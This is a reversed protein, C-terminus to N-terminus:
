RSISNANWWCAPSPITGPWEPRELVRAIMGEVEANLMAQVWAKSHGGGDSAALRAAMIGRLTPCEGTSLRKARRQLDELNEQLDEQIQALITSPGALDVLAAKLEGPTRPVPPKAGELELELAVIQAYASTPNLDASKIATTRTGIGAGEMVPSVEIVRLKQLFRVKKGEFTGPRSRLVEYGYSWEQLSGLGKVTEYTERGATTNLFFQGQVWAERSDSHITGKGVAPSAWNHGWQAIRVAEGETFAGVETVDGQRDVVGLRSFVAIFSGAEGAKFNGRGSKHEM